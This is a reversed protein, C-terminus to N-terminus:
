FSVGKLGRARALLWLKLGDTGYKAKWDPRSLKGGGTSESILIARSGYIGTLEKYLDEDVQLDYVVGSRTKKISGPLILDEIPMPVRSEGGRPLAGEDGTWPLCELYDTTDTAM